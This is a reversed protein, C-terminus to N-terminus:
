DGMKARLERLAGAFPRFVFRVQRAGPPLAVGRFIADVRLMTAPNGDVEVEWWPHWVDRLVLVGGQPAEVAVTVSTNRYDLIRASAQDPEDPATLAPMPSASDILTERRPDFGAPWQGTDIIAQSDVSRWNTAVFIRPLARPNEYLFADKTRGSPVLDGERLSPDIEQAPVGTAIFRLGLMDALLSRYSPMLPAFRRQDPLAVHDQAGTAQSYHRLRVPNYGLVHDLRHTMSANPWHFGIGALEIRDRRDGEAVVRQKLAAITANASDPRLVDYEASPLATSDNPGNHLALDAAMALAVMGALVVPSADRWRRLLALAVLALVTALAAQALHQSAYALQGKSQAIMAGAVLGGTLVLAAAALTRALPLAADTLLRHLAYGALFAAMGGILFAADAPRRFFAIGPITEFLLAFVPTYRGLAYLLMLVLFLGAWRVERSALRGAGIGVGAILALPLIGFYLQGMNRALYLQIDGWIPSPPGWHQMLPGDAGFLNPVLATVLLAPHLSGRGAGELDIVTRNSDAQFLATLVIPPGAVVLGAVLGGALPLIAARLRPWRGAGAFVHWAVLGTLHWVALYAVQDRGLVLFGAVCGAAIGYPVSSRKLARELLLWAIPWYALSLVQGVHQIRWAASCGYAFALAALVAGAPHWNRDRFLLAIAIAGALLAALLTADAARLGPDPVLLALLLYPPSFILSQPDAIQPQGAFVYPNWFPSEGRHLSQALFSIQPQFHAKADWPIAVHGSLWPWGLALWALAVIALVQWLPWHGHFPQREFSSHPGNHMTRM